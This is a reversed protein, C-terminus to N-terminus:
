QDNPQDKKLFSAAYIVALVLALLPWFLSMLLNEEFAVKQTCVRGEVKRNFILGVCFLLTFVVLYLYGLTEIVM